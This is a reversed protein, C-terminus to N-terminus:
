KKNLINRINAIGSKYQEKRRAILEDSELASQYIKPPPKMKCLKVFEPLTPPWSEGSDFCHSLGNAIQEGTYNRLGLSWTEATPTLKLRSSFPDEETASEGYETSFKRGYIHTMREFLNSILKINTLTNM